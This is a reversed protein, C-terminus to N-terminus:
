VLSRWIWWHVDNNQKDTSTTPRNTHTHTHMDTNWDIDNLLRTDDGLEDDKLRLYASALLGDANGMQALDQEYRASSHYINIFYILGSEIVLIGAYLTASFQGPWFFAHFIATGLFYILRVLVSNLQCLREDIFIMLLVSSRLSQLVFLLELMHLMLLFLQPRSHGPCFVPPNWADTLPNENTWLWHASIFTQISLVALFSIVVPSKWTSSDHAQYYYRVLYEYFDPLLRGALIAALLFHLSLHHIACGLRHTVGNIVPLDNLVLGVIGTSVIFRSVHSFPRNCSRAYNKKHGVFALLTIFLFLLLVHLLQRTLRVSSPLNMPIFHNTTTKTILQLTSNMALRVQSSSNGTQM